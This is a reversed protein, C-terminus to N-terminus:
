AQPNVEPDTSPVAGETVKEVEVIETMKQILLEACTKFLPSKGVEQSVRQYKPVVELYFSYKKTLENLDIMFKNKEEESPASLKFKKDM